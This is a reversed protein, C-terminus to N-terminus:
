RLDFGAPIQSINLFFGLAQYLKFADYGVLSCALLLLCCFGSSKTERNEMKVRDSAGKGVISILSSMRPLLLFCGSDVCHLYDRGVAAM